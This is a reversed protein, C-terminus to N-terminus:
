AAQSMTKNDDGDSTPLDLVNNKTPKRVEVPTKGDSDSKVFPRSFVPDAVPKNGMSDLGERRKKDEIAQKTNEPNRETSYVEKGEATVYLLEGEKTM